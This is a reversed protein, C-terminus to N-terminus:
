PLDGQEFDPVVVRARTVRRRESDTTLTEPAVALARELNYRADWDTPDTRLVDRYRQKAMGLLPRAESGPVDGRAGQRLYHNALNFRAAQGLPQFQHEDILKVYLTEAAEFQGGKSLAVATALLAEAPLTKGDNNPEESLTEPVADVAAVIQRHQQVKWAQWLCLALLCATVVAFCLHVTARKMRYVERQGGRAKRKATEM